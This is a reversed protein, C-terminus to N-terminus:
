KTHICNNSRQATTEISCRKKRKNTATMKGLTEPDYVYENDEIVVSPPEWGEICSVSEDSNEPENAFMLTKVDTLNNKGSNNVSSVHRTITFHITLQLYRRRHVLCFTMDMM